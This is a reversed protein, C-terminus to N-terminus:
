KQADFAAFAAEATEFGAAQIADAQVLVNFKLEADGFLEAIEEATVDADMGVTGWVNWYTMENKALPKIRTFVYANYVVGDDDTYANNVKSMKFEGKEICTTTYISSDLIATDLKAPFLVRIRVYADNSGTNQVYPMKHYSQGPLLTNNAELVDQYTAADAIIQEDTYCINGAKYESTPTGEMKVDSALLPNGAANERHLNSEYLTIDVDGVTFTNTAADKDTFYALTGGIVAVAALAVVLCMAMIKKKM